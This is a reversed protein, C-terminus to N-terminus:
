YGYERLTVRRFCIVSLLRDYERRLWRANSAERQFHNDQTIDCLEDRRAIVINRIVALKKPSHTESVDASLALVDKRLDVLTFYKKEGGPTPLLLIFPHIRKKMSHLTLVELYKYESKRVIDFM